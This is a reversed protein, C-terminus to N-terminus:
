GGRKGAKGEWVAKSESIARVPITVSGLNEVVPYAVKAIESQIEESHFKKGIIQKLGTVTNKM